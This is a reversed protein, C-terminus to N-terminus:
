RCDMVVEFITSLKENVDALDNSITRRSEEGLGLVVAIEKATMTPDQVWMEMVRFRRKGVEEQKRQAGESLIDEIEKREADALPSLQSRFQNLLQEESPAEPKVILRSNPNEKALTEYNSRGDENKAYIYERNAILDTQRGETHQGGVTKEVGQFINPIVWQSKSELWEFLTRTEEWKPSNSDFGGIPALQEGIFLDLVSEMEDDYDAPLQYKRALKPNRTMKKIMKQLQSLAQQHHYTRDTIIRVLHKLESTLFHQQIRFIEEQAARYVRDQFYVCRLANLLVGRISAAYAADNRLWDVFISVIPQPLSSAFRNAVESTFGKVLAEFENIVDVPSDSDSILTKSEEKAQAMLQRYTRTEGALEYVNSLFIAKAFNEVFGIYLPSSYGRHRDCAEVWERCFPHIASELLEQAYGVVYVMEGARLTRGPYVVNFM